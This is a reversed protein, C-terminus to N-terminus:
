VVVMMGSVMPCVTWRYDPHDTKPLGCYACSKWGYVEDYEYVRQHRGAMTDHILFM